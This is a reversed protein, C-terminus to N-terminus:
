EELHKNEKKVMPMGGSMAIQAAKELNSEVEGVQVVRDTASKLEQADNIASSGYDFRTSGRGGGEAEATLFYGNINKTFENLNRYVPEITNKLVDAYQLWVKQLAGSGVELEGIHRFSAISEVQGPTFNFNVSNQYAPTRSLRAIVDNRGVTGAKFGEIDKRVDSFFEATGFFQKAKVSKNFDEEMYTIHFPAYTNLEEDSKDMIDSFQLGENKGVLSRSGIKKSLKMKLVREGLEKLKAVLEAKTEVQVVRETMRKFPEYFTDLFTELTITFESFKMTTRGKPVRADLYIVHDYSAFHKVMNQFSGQVGTKPGLLKLSYHKGGLVVDTIPKGSAEVKEGTAIEVDSASVIQVSQGGFLGALFGEFIFGGAAETFENLIAGLSELVMMVTLIQSVGYQEPKGERTGTIVDNIQKLKQEVSTSEGGLSATFKEIVARDKNKLKGWDETVKITPLIDRVDFGAPGSMGALPMERESLFGRNNMYRIMEKLILNDLEKM